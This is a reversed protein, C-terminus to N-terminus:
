NGFFPGTGVVSEHMRKALCDHHADWSQERERGDDLWGVSLQIRDRAEVSQGCFCCADSTVSGEPVDLPMTKITGDPLRIDISSGSRQVPPRDRRQAM